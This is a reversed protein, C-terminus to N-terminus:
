VVEREANHLWSPNKTKLFELYYEFVKKKTQRMQWQPRAAHRMQKNQQNEDFLGIPNYLRGTKGVKVFYRYSDGVQVIKAHCRIDNEDEVIPYDETDYYDAKGNITFAIVKRNNDLEEQESDITHIAGFKNM